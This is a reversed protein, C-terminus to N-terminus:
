VEEGDVTFTGIAVAVGSGTKGITYFLADGAALTSDSNTVVSFSAPIDKVISSQAGGHTNYTAVTTSNAGATKKLVTIVAYNSNDTASNTGTLYKISSIKTKRNVTFMVTESVNTAANETGVKTFNWSRSHVKAIEGIPDTAGSTSMQGAEQFKRLERDTYTPM